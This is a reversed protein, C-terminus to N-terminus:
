INSGVSLTTLWPRFDLQDFVDIDADFPSVENPFILKFFCRFRGKRHMLLSRRFDDHFNRLSQEDHKEIMM